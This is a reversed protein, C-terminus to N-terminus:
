SAFEECIDISGQIRLKLHKLASPNKHHLREGKFLNSKEEIKKRMDEYKESEINKDEFITIYVLGFMYLDLTIISDYPKLLDMGEIITKLKEMRSEFQLNPIIDALKKFEKTEEGDVAAYIFNEYYSEMIKTFGRAVKDPGNNKAYQSLMSLYRVFDMKGDNVTIRKSFEPLFLGVLDKNLYYLAERSEIPLLKKGEINISRFVKSYFKQQERDDETGPVIFSFGLYSKNFSSLSVTTNLEEYGEAIAADHIESRDRLKSQRILDLLKNFNWNIFDIDEENEDDNENALDVDKASVKYADRNPFVRLYHLLLSTLRQQGDLILNQKEENEVYSGITVPPVFQNEVLANVLSQSQEKDWVFYRQYPPLVINGTLILDIWHQLTYEGYYVKNKDAM